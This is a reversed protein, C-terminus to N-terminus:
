DCFEKIKNIITNIDSIEINPVEKRARCPMGDVIASEESETLTRAGNLSLNKCGSVGDEGIGTLIVALIEIKNTFQVFSNFIINIDPNYQTNLSSKKNFYFQSNVTTLGECLYIQAANVAYGDQAMCLPNINNERLRSAFSPVFGEVMHQAIIITTNTLIPLSKVIKEIRGPGGTSAGILVIKKPVSLKM